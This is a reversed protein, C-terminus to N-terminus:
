LGLEARRQAEYQETRRQLESALRADVEAKCEAFTKPRPQFEVSSVPTKTKTSM